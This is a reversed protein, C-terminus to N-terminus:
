PAEWDPPLDTSDAPRLVKVCWPTPEIPTATFVMCDAMPVMEVETADPYLAVLLDYPHAFKTASKADEFLILDLHHRHMARKESFTM